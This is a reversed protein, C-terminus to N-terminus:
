LSTVVFRKGLADIRREDIAALEAELIQGATEPDALLPDLYRFYYAADTEGVPGIRTLAKAIETSGHLRHDHTRSPAAKELAEARAERDLKGQEELADILGLFWSASRDSGGEARFDEVIIRGGPNLAARAADVAGKLADVHHLSRTFLVADFKPEIPAPWELLQANVGEARAQQVAKPSSDIAVLEFGDDQLLKALQGAGCGVELVSRCDDRLAGRVFDYTYRLSPSM